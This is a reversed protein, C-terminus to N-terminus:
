GNGVNRLLMDEDELTQLDAGRSEQHHSWYTEDFRRSCSIWHRLTTDWLFLYRMLVAAFDQLECIKSTNHTNATTFCFQETSNNLFLLHGLKRERWTFNSYSLLCVHTHMKKQSATTLECQTDSASAFCQLLQLLAKTTTKVRIRLSERTLM